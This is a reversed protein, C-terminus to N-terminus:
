LELVDLDECCPGVVDEGEIGLAVDEGPAAALLVLEAAADELAVLQGGENRLAHTESSFVVDLLDGAALVVAEGDIHVTFDPGPTQVVKGLRADAVTGALVVGDNQTRGDNVGEGVVLNSINVATLVMREGASVVAGEKGPAAEVAM